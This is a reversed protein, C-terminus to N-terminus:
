PVPSLVLDPHVHDYRRRMRRDRVLIHAIRGRALGDDVANREAVQPIWFRVNAADCHKKRTIIGSIHGALCEVHVAPHSLDQSPRPQADKLGCVRLMFNKYALRM